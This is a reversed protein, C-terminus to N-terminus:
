VGTLIRTLIDYKKYHHLAQTDLYQKEEPQSLKSKERRTTLPKIKREENHSSV